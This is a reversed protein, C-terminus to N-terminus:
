LCGSAKESPSALQLYKKTITPQHGPVHESPQYIATLQHISLQIKWSVGVRIGELQAESHAVREWTISLKVSSFPLPQVGPPCDDHNGRLFIQQIKSM